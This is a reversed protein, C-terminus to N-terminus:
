KSLKVRTFKVNADKTRSNNSRHEIRAKAGDGAADGRKMKKKDCGERM